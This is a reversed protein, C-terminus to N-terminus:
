IDDELKSIWKDENSPKQKTLIHDTKGYDPHVLRKSIGRERVFPVVPLSSVIESIRGEEITAKEWLCFM